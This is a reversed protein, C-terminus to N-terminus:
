IMADHFDERFGFLFRCMWVWVINKLVWFLTGAWTVAFRRRWMVKRNAIGLINVNSIKKWRRRRKEEIEESFDDRHVKQQNEIFMTRSTYAPPAWLRNVNNHIMTMLKITARTENNKQRTSKAIFSIDCGYTRVNNKNMTCVWLELM